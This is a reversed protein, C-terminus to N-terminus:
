SVKRPLTAAAISGGIAYGLMVIAMQGLIYTGPFAYWIWNSGLVSISVLAGAVFVAAFRRSPSGAVLSLLYALLLGQVLDKGLEMAFEAPTQLFKNSEHFLLLGSRRTPAAGTDAPFYFFGSQGGVGSDLTDVILGERAMAELGLHAYPTARIAAQFLFM